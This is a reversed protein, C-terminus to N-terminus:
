LRPMAKGEDLPLVRPALKRYLDALGQLSTEVRMRPHTQPKHRVFTGRQTAVADVVTRSSHKAALPRDTFEVM